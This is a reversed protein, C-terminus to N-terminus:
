TTSIYMAPPRSAIRAFPSIKQSLCDTPVAKTEASFFTTLHPWPPNQGITSTFCRKYRVESAHEGKTAKCQSEFTAFHEQCFALNCESCARVDGQSPDTLLDCGVCENAVIGCRSSGSSDARDSYLRGCFRGHTSRCEACFMRLCSPCEWKQDSLCNLTACCPHLLATKPSPPDCAVPPSSPPTESEVPSPPAWQEEDEIDPDGFSDADLDEQGESHEFSSFPCCGEPVAPPCNIHSQRFNHQNCLKKCACFLMISM